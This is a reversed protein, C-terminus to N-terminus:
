KQKAPPAPPAAGGPAPPAAAKGGAAAFANNMMTILEKTVDHTPDVYLMRKFTIAREVDRAGGSPIQIREDSTLVMTYGNKTALEKAAETIKSNLDRLYEGFLQDLLREAFEKEAQAQLGDKIINENLARHQPGPPMAELQTRQDDIKKKWRDLSEQFETRRANFAADKEAREDLGNIVAGIDVVAIVPPIPPKRMGSVAGAGVALTAAACAAAAIVIWGRFSRAMTM